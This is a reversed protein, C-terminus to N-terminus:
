ILIDHEGSTFADILANVVMQYGESEQDRIKFHRIKVKRFHVGIDQSWDPELTDLIDWSYDLAYEHLAEGCASCAVTIDKLEEFDIVLKNTTYFCRSFNM